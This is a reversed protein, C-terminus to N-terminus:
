DLVSKTQSRNCVHGDYIVYSKSMETLFFNSKFCHLLGAWAAIGFVTGIRGVICAQRNNVIRISYRVAHM